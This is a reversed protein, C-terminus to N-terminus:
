YPLQPVNKQLPPSRCPCSVMAVVYVLINM